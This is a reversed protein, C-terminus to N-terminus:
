GELDVIFSVAEIQKDANVIPETWQVRMIAKIVRYRNKKNNSGDFKALASTLAGFKYTEVKAFEYNNDIEIPRIGFSVSIKELEATVNFETKFATTKGLAIEHGTGPFLVKSISLKTTGAMVEDSVKSFSAALLQNMKEELIQMAQVSRFDKETGRHGYSVLGSISLIAVILICFAMMIEILSVGKNDIRM